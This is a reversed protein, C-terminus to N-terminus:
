GKCFFDFSSLNKWSKGKLEQPNLCTVSGADMKYYWDKFKRFSCDCNWPNNELQLNRLSSLDKFVTENLRTLKNNRLSLDQLGSLQQLANPHIDEIQCNELTLYRLLPSTLFFPELRKLPNGNLNLKIVWRPITDPKLGSIKNDSLDLDRLNAVGRFADEDIEAIENSHLNLWQLDLLDADRFVNAGLKTISNHSLDLVENEPDLSRPITKLNANACLATSKANILKCQCPSQCLANSATVCCLVIFSIRKWM